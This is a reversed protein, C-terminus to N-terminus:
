PNALERGLEEIRELTSRVDDWASRHNLICLRLAYRGLLRTSSMMATGEELLRSQVAANLEELADEGWAGPPRFRFCVIGLSPPSLTELTDSAAVWEGARRALDVGRGVAEGLTRTGLAQVTAWVKLARFRRTLQLGRDAFNVHELGMDVDQLYEPLIRFAAELRGVDRVMLCGAEFPQFLWKHPDLTVSNARGIGELARRGEETLVVFGGYAADVHLWVGEERALDALESLPDVAGTNTAGASVSLCIPTFGAERAEALARAAAEPRMRFADDSPVRVIGEPRVGAIRAAREVSSHGQDGLLVAPRPPAGAAERAAVLACLNAASGGSTFLGSAGEPMGLWARFWDLVVLEVESPGASELWTGQFVNYGTALWDGLISSWVPSAPVFAFFRPHDIRGARSLVDEVARELVAELERGEVPPPERLLRELEQRRGGAWPSSAALGTSRDVVWDVVRYGLRRMEEPPPDLPPLEDRRAKAGGSEKAAEAM